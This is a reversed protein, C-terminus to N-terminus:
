SKPIPVRAIVPALRAATQRVYRRASEIDHYAFPEAGQKELAEQYEPDSIVQKVVQELKTLVSRPLNAPGSIANFTGIVLGPLGAEATTPVDPFEKLREEACVALLRARKGRVLNAVSALTAPYVQVRNALFDSQIAAVGKYPVHVMETGAVMNFFEGTYHSLSGVGGSAFSVASPKSKALRVLDRISSVPVDNNVAIVGTDKAIIAIIPLDKEPEFTLKQTAPVFIHTGATSFLLTYGDPKARAVEASAIAGGAGAKADLFMQQGLRNSAALAFARGVGDTSGGAAFPMVLRIPKDPYAGQARVPMGIAGLGGAFATTVIFHRRNM